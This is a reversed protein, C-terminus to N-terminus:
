TLLRSRNLKLNLGSRKYDTIKDNMSDWIIIDDSVLQRFDKDGSVIVVHFGQKRSLASVTGILDDAEYGEKELIRINLKTVIDKIYPIQVAMDEPMAPRSAKYGKCIEHRFTPGKLDFAIGIYEPSKEDLLKLLM